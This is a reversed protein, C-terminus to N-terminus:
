EADAAWGRRVGAVSRLHQALGETAALGEPSGHLVLRQLVIILQRVNMAGVVKMLQRDTHNAALAAPYRHVFSSFWELARRTGHSSDLALAQPVLVSCVLTMGKATPMAQFAERQRKDMKAPRAAHPCHCFACADGNACNGAVHFICLRNCLFPHGFSGPSNQTVAGGASVGSAPATPPPATTNVLKAADKPAAGGDRTAVIHRSTAQSATPLAPWAAARGRPAPRHDGASTLGIPCQHAVGHGVGRHEQHIRVDPAGGAQASVAAAPLMIWEGPGTPGHGGDHGVHRPLGGPLQAAQAYNPAEFLDSIDVMAHPPANQAPTSSARVAFDRICSVDLVDEFTESPGEMFAGATYANPEVAM